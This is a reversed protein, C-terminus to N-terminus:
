DKGNFSSVQNALDEFKGLVITHVPLRSAQLGTEPCLYKGLIINSRLFEKQAFTPSDFISYRADLEERLLKEHYLLSAM